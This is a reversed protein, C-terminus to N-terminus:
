SCSHSVSNNQNSLRMRNPIKIKISQISVPSHPQSLTEEFIAPM